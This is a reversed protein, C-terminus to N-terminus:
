EGLTKARFKLWEIDYHAMIMQKGFMELSCGFKKEIEDLLEKAKKQEADRRIQDLLTLSFMEDYSQNSNVKKFYVYHENRFAEIWEKDHTDTM